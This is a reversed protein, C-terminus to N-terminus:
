KKKRRRAVFEKIAQCILYSQTRDERQGIKALADLDSPNVRVATLKTPGRFRMAARRAEHANRIQERTTPDHLGKNWPRVSHPDNGGAAMNLLSPNQQRWFAIWYRERERWRSASVAELIRQGLAGTPYVIKMWNRLRQNSGFGRIHQKVRKM